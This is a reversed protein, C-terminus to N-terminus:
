TEGRHALGHRIKQEPTMASVDFGRREPAGAPVRAAQTNEAIRRRVRETLERATVLSADIADVTDGTILEAPLDPEARVALERYRQTVGALQEHSADLESRTAQAAEAVRRLEDRVDNADAASQQARAEANAAERELREIDARASELEESLRALADEGPTGADDVMM